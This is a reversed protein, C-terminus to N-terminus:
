EILSHLVIEQVYLMKRYEMPKWLTRFGYIPMHLDTFEMIPLDACTQHGFLPKRYMRGHSEMLNWALYFPKLAKWILVYTEWPRLVELCPFQM